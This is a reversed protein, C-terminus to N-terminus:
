EDREGGVLRLDPITAGRHAHRGLAKCMANAIDVLTRDSVPEGRRRVDELMFELAMFVEAHLGHEPFVRCWENYREEVAVTM